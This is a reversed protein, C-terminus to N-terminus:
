KEVIENYIRDLKINERLIIQKWSTSIAGIIGYYEVFNVNVNYTNAFVNFTYLSKNDPLILDNIFLFFSVMKVFNGILAWIRM